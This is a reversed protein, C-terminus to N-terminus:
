LLLLDIVRISIPNLNISEHDKGESSYHSMHVLHKLIINENAHIIAQPSLLENGCGILAVSM